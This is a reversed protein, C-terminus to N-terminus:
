FCCRRKDTGDKDLMFLSLAGISAAITVFSAFLSSIDSSSVVVIDVSADDDEGDGDEDDYLVEPVTDVLQELGWSAIAIEAPSIM